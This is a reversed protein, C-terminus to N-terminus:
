SPPYYSLDLRFYGANSQYAVPSASLAEWTGDPYLQWRNMAGSISATSEQLVQSNSLGPVAFTHLVLDILASAQFFLNVADIPTSLAVSSGNAFYLRQTKPTTNTSRFAHSFSPDLSLGLGLRTSQINFTPDFVDPLVFNAFLEAGPSAISGTDEAASSTWRFRRDNLPIDNYWLAHSAFNGKSTTLMFASPNVLQPVTRTKIVGLADVFAVQDSVSDNAYCVVWDDLEPGTAMITQPTLGPVAPLPGFPEPRDGGVWYQYSGPSGTRLLARIGGPAALSSFYLWGRQGM